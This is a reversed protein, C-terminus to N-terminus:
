TKLAKKKERDSIRSPEDSKTKFRGRGGGTATKKKVLQVVDEDHLEHTLGCRQPYHKASTGWVLGYDLQKALEAHLQKCFVNLTAGGRAQSLMVPGAFDPKNGVQAGHCRRAHSRVPSLAHLWRRAKKTYVRRLDMASWMQELLVEMGLNAVCSIPVCYPQRALKDVEEICLVDIKNYVYLCRIYKRNGEIVDIFEDITADERFLVEANHIRYEAPTRMDAYPEVSAGCCRLFTGHLINNVLKEDMHTLPVTSSFSIGGTKNRKFYVQPPSRNLRIGVAELERTLIAKHHETKTADLVQLGCRDSPQLSLELAAAALLLAPRAMLILDASKAVAIVQRGRGKGESAGEIIGPM